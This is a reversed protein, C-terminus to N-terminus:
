CIRGAIDEVGGLGVDGFVVEAALEGFHVFRVLVLDVDEAHAGLITAALGSTESQDVVRDLGHLFEFGVVSQDTDAM